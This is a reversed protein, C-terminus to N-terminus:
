NGENKIMKSRLKFEKNEEKGKTFKSMRENFLFDKKISYSLYKHTEMEKYYCMSSDLFQMSSDIYLDLQRGEVQWKGWYKINCYSQEFTSDSNLILDPGGYLIRQRSHIYRIWKNVEEPKVSRYNGVLDNKLKGSACSVMLICFTAIILLGRNM